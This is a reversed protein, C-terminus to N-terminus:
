CSNQVCFFRVREFEWKGWKPVKELFRWLVRTGSSQAVMQLGRPLNQFCWVVATFGNWSSNCQLMLWPMELKLSFRALQAELSAEMWWYLGEHADTEVLGPWLVVFWCLEEFDPLFEFRVKSSIIIHKMFTKGHQTWQHNYNSFHNLIKPTVSFKLKTALFTKAYNMSNLDFPHFYINSQHHAHQSPKIPISSELKQSTQEEHDHVSGSYM